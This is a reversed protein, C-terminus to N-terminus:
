CLWPLSSGVVTVVASTTGTTGAEPKWTEEKAAQQTKPQSKMIADHNPNHEAMYSSLCKYLGPIQSVLATTGLHYHSLSTDEHQSATHRSRASQAPDQETVFCDSSMQKGVKLPSLM